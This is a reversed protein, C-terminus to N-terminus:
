ALFCAVGVASCFALMGMANVFLNRHEAFIREKV